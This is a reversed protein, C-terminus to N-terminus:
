AQEIFLESGRKISRNFMIGIEGSHAEDVSKDDIQISKVVAVAYSSNKKVIIKMNRTIHIRNINKVIAIKGDQYYEEPVGISILNEPKLEILGVQFLKNRVHEKTIIGDEVMFYAKYLEFTTLLGRKDLLADGIQVDSFPPNLRSHPPIYRQHNVIYLGFVDFRNRQEARRFRIKSIQSCDKDTSTGSIGKVEIVLLGKENEVQLDEEKIELELEDMNVVSEFGLWNLFYEVAKVLKDGTEFILEHLFHYKIRNESLLRDLDHIDKQYKEELNKKAEILANEGPLLYEGSKLWGFQGHFPFLEPYIEPLYVNLLDSLFKGKNKIDPFVLILGEDYFHSFSIIEGNDNVLLPLFSKMKVNKGDKWETPHSFVINYTSGDLYKELLPSLKTESEPLKIKNGSKNKSSPLGSYFDLNSYEKESTVNAYRDNIEVFQYSVSEEQPSFCIVVSEKKLIEAIEKAIVYISLPRPDFITQPYKCLLAHAKKDKTRDISHDNDKYEISKERTMDFIVIDFEHLNAPIRYNLLLFHESHRENNPVKVCTGTSAVEHKFLNSSLLKSVDDDTDFLCILPREHPSASQVQADKITGLTDKKKKTKFM